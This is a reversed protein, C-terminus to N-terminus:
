FPLEDTVEEAEAAANVAQQDYDHDEDDENTPNVGGKFYAKLYEQLVKDMEIAETEQKESIKDTTFIPEVWTSKGKKKTDTAGVVKILDKFIEPRAEKKYDNDSNQFSIWAGISSGYFKINCLKTEKKGFLAVYVSNAFKIGACAPDTKIDNWLGEIIKKKGCFVKLPEANINRVENGYYGNEMEDNFGAVTTLVDLVAFSIKNGIEINKEEAKDWYSFLGKQSDWKLFLASPNKQGEHANPNSRSM